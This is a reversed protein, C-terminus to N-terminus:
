LSIFYFIFFIGCFLFRPHFLLPAVCFPLIRSKWKVKNFVTNSYLVIASMCLIISQKFVYRTTSYNFLLYESMEYLVTCVIYRHIYRCKDTYTVVRRYLLNLKTINSFPMIYLIRSGYSKM